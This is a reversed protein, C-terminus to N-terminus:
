QTKEKQGYLGRLLWTNMVSNEIIICNEIFIEIKGAKITFM